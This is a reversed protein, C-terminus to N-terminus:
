KIEKQVAVAKGIIRVKNLNEGAFTLAPIAPNEAVLIIRSQEPYYYVRKLTAESYEAGDDILVAAIEGNEVTNQERCFIVDGDDIDADVMSNGKAILCFDVHKNATIIRSEGEQQNALIPRGCAIKGILPIQRFFMVESVSPTAISNMPVDYGMLWAESVHLADSLLSLSDQRPKYRGNLWSNIQSKHIGTKEALESQTTNRIDLIEKFREKFEVKM